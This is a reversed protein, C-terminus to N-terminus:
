THARTQPIELPPKGQNQKQTTEGRETMSMHVSYKYIPQEYFITM